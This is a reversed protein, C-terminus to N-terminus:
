SHNHYGKYQQLRVQGTLHIRLTDGKDITGTLPQKGTTDAVFWGKLDIAAATTNL